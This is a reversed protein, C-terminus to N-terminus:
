TRTVKLAITIRTVSTISSASFEIIDGATITTTWGTLSSSQAKQASSLAPAASAVISTTTPFGSYAAKAIGITISGSVDALLTWQSITCAFPVELYGKSGATIASGSGDIIFILDNVTVGNSSTTIGTGGNGLPLTGTVGTSLPLGTANTLTTGSAITGLAISNGSADLYISKGAPYTCFVNKSGASFNVASGSNSSALITDRSLTTGSSTYTGIGVEWEALTQHVIAYYTTNANGIVSFSQFGSVAGALTITGTGTTTTTEQVRDKVALAM